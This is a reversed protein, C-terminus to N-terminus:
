PRKVEAAWTVPTKIQCTEDLQHQIFKGGQM